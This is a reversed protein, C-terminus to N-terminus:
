RSGPGGPQPRVTVVHLSASPEAGVSVELSSGSPIGPGSSALCASLTRRSVRDAIGRRRARGSWSRTSVPAASAVTTPRPGRAGRSTPAAVRRRPPRPCRAIRRLRPPRPGSRRGTGCRPADDLAVRGAARGIRPLRSQVRDLVGVRPGGRAGELVGGCPPAARAPRDCTMPVRRSSGRRSAARARWSPLPPPRPPPDAAPTAVALPDPKPECKLRRDGPREAKPVDQNSLRAPPPHRGESSQSGRSLVPSRPVTTARSHPRKCRGHGSGSPGMCEPSAGGVPLIQHATVVPSSPATEPRREQRAQRRCAAESHAAWGLSSVARQSPGTAVAVPSRRTRAGRPRHKAQAVLWRELYRRRSCRRSRPPSAASTRNGVDRTGPAGRPQAGECRISRAGRSRQGSSRARLDSPPHRNAPEPGPHTPARSYPLPPSPALLPGARSRRPNAACSSQRADRDGVDGRCVRSGVRPRFPPISSVPLPRPRERPRVVFPPTCARAPRPVRHLPRAHAGLRLRVRVARDVSTTRFPM